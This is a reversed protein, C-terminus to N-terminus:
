DGRQQLRNRTFQAYCDANREQPLQLRLQFGDSGEKRRTRHHTSYIVAAFLICAHTRPSSFGSCLAVFLSRHLNAVVANNQSMTIIACVILKSFHSRLVNQHFIIATAASTDCKIGQCFTLFTIEKNKEHTKWMTKWMTM